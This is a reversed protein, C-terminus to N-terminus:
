LKGAVEFLRDVEAVDGCANVMAEKRWWTRQRRAYAWTAFFIAAELEHRAIKGQLFEVIQRYGVTELAPAQPGLHALLQETEDIWGAQLMQAARTQLKKRLVASPLDWVAVRMTHREVPEHSKHWDSLPRGTLTFVELARIVRILDHTHIKEASNPDVSQLRRHLIGPELKEEARFKQRLERDAAPGEFLGWRLARFYLGSGGVLVLPVQRAQADAIVEDAAKQYDAASFLVDPAVRDILHHRVKAQETATPKASGIDVGRFLQVSDCSLIEGGVREAWDLAIASKGSGTPGVLAFLPLTM